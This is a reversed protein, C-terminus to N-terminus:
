GGNLLNLIILFGAFGATYHSFKQEYNFHVEKSPLEIKSFRDGYKRKIYKYAEDYNTYMYNHYLMLVLSIVLCIWGVLEIM